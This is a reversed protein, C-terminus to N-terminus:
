FGKEDSDRFSFSEQIPRHSLELIKDDKGAVRIAVGVTRM